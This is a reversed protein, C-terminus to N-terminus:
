LNEERIVRCMASERTVPDALAERAARDTITAPDREGDTVDSYSDILIDRDDQVVQLASKLADALADARLEAAALLDRTKTYEECWEDRLKEAKDARQQQEIAAALTETLTQQDAIRLSEYAQTAKELRQETTALKGRMYLADDLLTQYNQQSEALKRAYDQERVAGERQQKFWEAKTSELDARLIEIELSQDSPLTM